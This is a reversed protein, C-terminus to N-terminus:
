AKSKGGIDVLYALLGVCTDIAKPWQRMDLYENPGHAGDDSPGLGLLVVPADFTKRLTAVAPLSGGSAVMRASRGFGLRCAGQVAHELALPLQLCDGRASKRVSIQLAADGSSNRLAAVVLPEADGPDIGPPLRVDVVADARTPIGGPTGRTLWSSVTVAARLTSRTALDGSHVARGRVDGRIVANPVRPAGPHCASRLPQVARRMRLLAEALILSPDLVAGGFRGAHVSSGGVEVTLRITLLGRQSATLSPVGSTAERTDSIIVALVPGCLLVDHRWGRVVEDLEPSGIEEAGEAVVVVDSPPGGIAIWAKLAALHAMLQGKDDSAGRAILRSGCRTPVFPPSTWGDGAPRVDLHGYVVVAPASQDRGRVRSLVVPGTGTSVVTVLPTQQRLWAALWNAARMVDRRHAASGSVSPIRLWNKLAAASQPLARRAVTRAASLQSSV